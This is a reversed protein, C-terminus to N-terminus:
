THDLAEHNCNGYKKFVEKMGKQILEKQHKQYEEQLQEQYMQTSAQISEQYQDLKKKNEAELIASEKKLESFLEKEYAVIELDVQQQIKVKEEALHVDLQHIDSEASKVFDIIDRSLAECGKKNM